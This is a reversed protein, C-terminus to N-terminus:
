GCIRSHLRYFYVVGSKETLTYGGSAPALTGYDGAQNFYGGRKDPQFIRQSGGPGSITVTGDSAQQLSYQWNHSWGMGLPGLAYRQSIREGFSRSFVLPLGPAPVSADVSSALTQFPCLGDAQMLQFPLLKSVDAVNFGLGGLYSANNDLM